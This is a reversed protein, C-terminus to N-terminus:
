LGVQVDAALLRAAIHLSHLEASLQVCVAAM